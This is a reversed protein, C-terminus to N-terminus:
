IQIRIKGSLGIVLFGASTRIPLPLPLGYLRRIARLQEQAADVARDLNAAECNVRRNVGNRLEKEARTNMLGMASVPAGMLTLLDEIQSSSKFYTVQWGSRVTQKPRCGMDVLLALLERSAQTHSHCSLPSLIYPVPM